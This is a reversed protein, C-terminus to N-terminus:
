RTSKARAESGALRIASAARELREAIWLKVLAQWTVGLRRAEKDLAEVVWAPFGVNVRTLELNPRRALDVDSSVDEGADFKRDFEPRRWPGKGTQPLLRSSTHDPDCGAM